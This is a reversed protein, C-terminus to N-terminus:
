VLAVREGPKIDFSLEQFVKNKEDYSFKVAKFEIKGQTIKAKTSSQDMIEHPSELVELMEQIESFMRSLHRMIHGVGFMQQILRMVYMQLLVFIGISVKELGRLHIAGYFIGIELVIGALGVSGWIAMSRYYYGSRAKRVSETLKELSRKERELSSFIKLNMYNSITDSLEGSVQSDLANAKQQHPYIWKFLLYQSGVVVIM